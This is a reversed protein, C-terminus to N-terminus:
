DIVYSDMCTQKSRMITKAIMSGEYEVVKKTRSIIMNSTGTEKIIDRYTRGDCIMRAIVFRRSMKNLESSSCVGKFFKDCEEVTQLTLVAEIFHKIMIRDEKKM